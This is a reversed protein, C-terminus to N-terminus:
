RGRQQRRRQERNPRPKTLERFVAQGEPSKAWADSEARTADFVGDMHWEALQNLGEARLDALLQICPTALPSKYDDLPRRCRPVGHPRASRARGARSLFATTAEGELRQPADVM